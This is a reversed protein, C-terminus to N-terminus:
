IIIDYTYKEKNEASSFKIRLQPSSQKQKVISIKHGEQVKKKKALEKEMNSFNEITIENFVDKFGAERGM